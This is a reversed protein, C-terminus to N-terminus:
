DLLQQYLAQTEPSPDIGLEERLVTMCQHYLQIAMARDGNDRHLQMLTQYASERLPDAALVQQAYRLAVRYHHQNQLLAILQELASLYRQRLRERERILWEPDLTPLLDGCYFAIARELSQQKESDPLHEVENLAAEFEAMDLSFDAAVNWQLTKANILLYREPHPLAQRLNFIDKRLSTRAQSDSMDPYLAFAIRQRTQPTHRQLLLYALLIQSRENTLTDIIQNDCIIQVDGFVQIQLPPSHTKELSLLPELKQGSPSGSEPEVTNGRELHEQITQNEQLASISTSEATSESISESITGDVVSGEVAGLTKLSAKQADTLGQVGTINMGEYPRKPQLSRVCRGTSHQWLKIMGDNSGSALFEGRPDFAITQVQNTHGILTHLEAGTELNWLKITSDGSGSALVSHRPSFCISQIQSSHGEFVQLLEGSTADWLRIIHDAGGSAILNGDPHWAVSLVPQNHGRLFRINEGTQMEWLGITEDDSASALIPYQPNWSVSRIKETHGYLIQIPEGTQVDWICITQDASGSALHCGDLSWALSRVSDTHGRLVRSPCRHRSQLVTAVDWLRITMDISGSAILRGDPSFETTRVWSQHGSLEALTEGTQWNWLRTLGDLSGSALLPQTPHFTVSFFQNAFGQLTKLCEGTQADWLKLTQDDGGSVWQQHNDFAIAWVWDLHEKITHLCTGSSLDWLKLTQGSSSSGLRQGDASFAIALIAHTHGALIQSCTHTQPNWLRITTDSSGSALSRGDPSWTVSWVREQHGRLTAVCVGTAYNWLKVTCDSSGSALYAGDPSVAVARVPATHGTLTRIVLGSQDWINITHDHSGSVLTGDPHFAITQVYNSHDQLTQLRQGTNVDWLHILADDGGSALQQGNPSFAIAKTWDNHGQLTFLLQYDSTRWIRLEGNSDGAALLQYDPSFAVSLISSFTNTFVTDILHTYAFNVDHLTAKPLYAHRIMCGSFDYQNLDVHLFFSLNILNGCGYGSDQTDESRLVTLIQLMQQELGTQSPFTQRLQDAIPQLILRTQSERIYDSATTKICTYHLFLDLETTRLETVVQEILQAIVYEMVVPQLTYQGAQTEILSRWSLAELAQLVRSRSVSPQLDDVLASVSTWERNIALWYMLSQELESLRQFQQDLLYQLGSFIWTEETLFLSIDGDFLSHISTAVIKLALPSNSYHAALQQKEPDTGTLGKAEILAIAAEPSGTLQLSRVSLADGELAGVVAPKERSTFIVLSQHRTEAILRMLIGFQEHEAWFSGAQEGEQLITEMNDFVILCRAQRLWHLLRKPTAETDQQGSIFPVVDELLDQLSPANRLSRWIIHQFLCDDSEALTEVLKAVLATKGMGGMGLVGILRCRDGEVWQKLRILEAQRGYFITVDPAEGWDIALSSSPSLAAGAGPLASVSSPEDDTAPPLSSSEIQRYRQEIAARFSTKSVHEGLAQSLQKWFKPGVARTLYGSSYGAEEATVEYTQNHWAGKFLALEADNLYRDFCTVMADNVLNLATEFEM